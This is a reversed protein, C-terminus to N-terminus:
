KPLELLARLTDEYALYGLEVCQNLYLLIEDLRDAMMQGDAKVRDVAVKYEDLRDLVDLSVLRVSGDLGLCQNCFDQSDQRGHPGLFRM